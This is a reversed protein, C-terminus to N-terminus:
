KEPPDLNHIHLPKVPDAPTFGGLVRAFFLMEQELTNKINEAKRFGHDEGEYEVLATPLGKKRVAEFMLAAQDPPVVKDDLGQFLIIPCSLQDVHNIPSRDVYVQEESEFPGILNDLYRSEFKHTDKALATLESIGYLSCGASFTNRFALVALTTYGGASRGDIALRKSDARGAAVLHEACSCCDDVDVVGWRGNLRERYERGYGTSGGYNVDAVAWGRSTWYQISMQLGMGVEATPGGHSKVLLPPLEGAPAHFDPNSPPYFIAFATKGPTTTPFEISEPTTLYRGLTERDYPTSEWRVSTAEGSAMDPSLLVQVISPGHTPSGATIYASGGAAFVSSIDVFPTAVPAMTRQEVDVVALRSVGKSRYAALLHMGDLFAYHANGFNWLPTTFEAEEPAAAAELVAEVSGTAEALSGAPAGTPSWVPETPAETLAVDGGAVCVKSDLKGQPSITAVWLQTRDWPMYPHSWEIWALHRGDPSVRPYAYFDNGTVLVKPDQDSLDDLRFAVIENTPEKGGKKHSERVCIFLNGTPDVSGDAYRLARNESAASIPVPPGGAFATNLLSSRLCYDLCLNCDHVLTRVNFDAPTIDEQPPGGGSPTERVLVTRGKEAPRGELWMLCGQPDLFAGGLRLATGTVFEATLPSKWGGYPMEKKEAMGESSARASFIRQQTSKGALLSTRAASSSFPSSGGLFHSASNSCSLYKPEQSEAGGGLLTPSRSKTPSQIFSPLTDTKRILKHHAQCVHSSLRRVTSSCKFSTLLFTYPSTLLSSASLTAM